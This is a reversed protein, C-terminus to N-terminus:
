GGVYDLQVICAAAPAGSGTATSTVAIAMGNRFSRPIHLANDLGGSTPLPLVLDPTTTGLTVDAVLADFMQVFTDSGNPNYCTYNYLLVSATTVQVLTEDATYNRYPTSGAPVM